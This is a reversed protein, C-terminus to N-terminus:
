SLILHAYGSKPSPDFSLVDLESELVTLIEDRIFLLHCILGSGKAGGKFAVFSLGAVFLQGFIFNNGPKLLDSSCV